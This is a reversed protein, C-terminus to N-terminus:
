EATSSAQSQYAAYDLTYVISFYDEFAIENIKVASLSSKIEEVKKDKLIEDLEKQFEDDKLKHRITDAYNQAGTTDATIDKRYVLRFGEDNDLPILKAKNTDIKNFTDYYDHDTTIYGDQPTANETSDSSEESVNLTYLSAYAEEFTMTGDNVKKECDEYQSKITAKEEDTKSSYDETTILNFVIYNEEFYKKIEDESVAKKGEEGYVKDFSYEILQVGKSIKVYTSKSVGNAELYKGLSYDNDDGHPFKYNWYVNVNSSFASDEEETLSIEYKKMYEEIAVINKLTKLTNSSVYDSFSKGDIKLDRYYDEESTDIDVKTSSIQRYADYANEYMAAIYMGTTFENNGVKVAIENKGHCGCFSVAIIAVVIGLTLVKKLNNM